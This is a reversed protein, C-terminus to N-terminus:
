DEANVFDGGSQDENRRGFRPNGDNWTRELQEVLELGYTYRLHFVGRDDRMHERTWWDSLDDPLGPSDEPRHFTLLLNRVALSQEEFDRRTQQIKTRHHQTELQEAELRDHLTEKEANAEGLQTLLKAVDAEYSKNVEINKEWLQIGSVCIYTSLVAVFAFCSIAFRKWFRKVNRISERTADIQDALEDYKPDKEAYKTM